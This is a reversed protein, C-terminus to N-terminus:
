RMKGESSENMGYALYHLGSNRTDIGHKSAFQAEVNYRDKYNFLQVSEKEATVSLKVLGARETHGWLLSEKQQIQDPPLFEAMAIRWWYRLMGRISSVRLATGDQEYQKAGGFFGPTVLKLPIKQGKHEGAFRGYGSTTKGGVGNEVLTEKLWQAAIKLDTDTARSTKKLAFQFDAGKEVAIFPIPIPNHFDDKHPTLIDLVLKWNKDAPVAALFVISGSSDSDKTDNGFIRQITDNNASIQRAYHRAVGKLASGPIMPYNFFKHLCLGANELVGGSHNVIMRGGLKMQFKDDGSLQKPATNNSNALACIKELEATKNRRTTDAFKDLLLSASVGNKRVLVKVEQNKM